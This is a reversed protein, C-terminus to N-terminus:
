RLQYGPRTRGFWPMYRDASHPAASASAREAAIQALYTFEHFESGNCYEVRQSELPDPTPKLSINDEAFETAKTASYQLVHKLGVSLVRGYRSNRPNVINVPPLFRWGM